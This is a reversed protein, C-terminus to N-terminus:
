LCIFKARGKGHVEAGAGHWRLPAVKLCPFIRQRGGDCVKVQQQALMPKREACLELMVVQPKTREILAQADKCSQASVHATGLVLVRCPPGGEGSPHAYELVALPQPLDELSMSVNLTSEHGKESPSEPGQESSM